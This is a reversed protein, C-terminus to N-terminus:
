PFLASSGRIFFFHTYLKVIDCCTPQSFSSIVFHDKKNADRKDRKFTVGPM